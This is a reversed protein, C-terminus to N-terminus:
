GQPVPAAEAPPAEPAPAPAPPAPPDVPAVLAIKTIESLGIIEGAENLYETRTAVIQTSEPTAPVSEPATESFGDALAKDLQDKDTVTLTGGDKYVVKPFEQHAYPVADFAHKASNAGQSKFGYPDFAANERALDDAVSM